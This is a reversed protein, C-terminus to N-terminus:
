NNETAQWDLDIIEHSILEKHESDFFFTGRFKKGALMLPMWIADDPWMESYPIRDLRFWKPVAEDTEREIGDYEDAVFVHVRWEPRGDFYFLLEGVQWPAEPVINVEEYLERKACDQLTESGAVKGGPGNWMGIGLGKKKKILLVKGSKIVYCLTATIM